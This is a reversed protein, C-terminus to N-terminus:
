QRRQKPKYDEKQVMRWIVGHDDRWLPRESAQAGIIVFTQAAYVYVLHGQSDIFTRQTIM